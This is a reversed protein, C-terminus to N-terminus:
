TARGASVILSESIRLKTWSCLKSMQTLEQRACSNSKCISPQERIAIKNPATVPSSSRRPAPNLPRPFLFNRLFKRQEISFWRQWLRILAWPEATFCHKIAARCLATSTTKSTRRGFAWRKPFSKNASIAMASSCRLWFFGPHRQANSSRSSIPNRNGFLKECRKSFAVGACNPAISSSPRARNNM